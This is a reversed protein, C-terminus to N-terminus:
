RGGHLSRCCRCGRTGGRGRVPQQTERRASMRSLEQCAGTGAATLPFTKAQGVEWVRLNADLVGTDAGLAADPSSHPHHPAPESFKGKHPTSFLSEQPNKLWLAEIEKGHVRWRQQLRPYGARTCCCHAFPSLPALCGRGAPFLPRLDRLQSTPAQVINIWASRFSPPNAQTRGGKGGEGLTKAQSPAPGGWCPPGPTGEPPSPPQLAKPQEKYSSATEASTQFGWTANEPVKGGANTLTLLLLKM